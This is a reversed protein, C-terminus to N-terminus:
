AAHALEFGLLSQGQVEYFAVRVRAGPTPAGADLLRGWIRVGEPMDVALITYPEDAQFAPDLARHVVIWSYIEGTGGTVPELSIHTSLCYRCTKVPPFSFRKCTLCRPLVLEHRAVADWWADSDADRDPPVFGSAPAM